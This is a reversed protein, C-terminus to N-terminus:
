MKQFISRVEGGSRSRWWKQGAMGGRRGAKGGRRGRRESIPGGKSRSERERVYLLLKCDTSAIQRKQSGGGSCRAVGILRLVCSIKPSNNYKKSSPDCREERGAEGGSGVPKIAM